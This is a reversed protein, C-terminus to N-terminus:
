RRRRPAEDEEADEDITKRPRGRGRRPAEEAEDTDTATTKKPAPAEDEEASEDAKTVEKLLVDLFEQRVEQEIERVNEVNFEAIIEKVTRVGLIESAESVAKLIDRDSIEDEEVVKSKSKLAMEAKAVEAKPPRGRGRRPAEEAEVNAEPEKAEAVPQLTPVPALNVGAPAFNVGGAANILKQAELESLDTFTIAIKM